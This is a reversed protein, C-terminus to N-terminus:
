ATYKIFLEGAKLDAPTATGVKVCGDPDAWAATGSATNKLVQGVTGGTPIHKYGASTPHTYVVTETGNIKVNGNTTSKEVKTAGATIGDLKTKLATTFDNTSLGKGSVKDVKSGIATNLADVASQNSNIYDAIEKLTDYTEPANDILNSIATSIKTDVQAPTIKGSELTTISTMISALRGALTENTKTDVIVNEAGCQAFIDYIVGEIMTQLVVNKVAM